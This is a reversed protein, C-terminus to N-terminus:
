LRVTSKVVGGNRTTPLMEAAINAEFEASTSSQIGGTKLIVTKGAAGATVFTTGLWPCGLPPLKTLRVMTPNGDPGIRRTLKPSMADLTSDKKSTVAPTISTTTEAGGCAAPATVIRTSSSPETKLAATGQTYPSSPSDRLQWSPHVTGVPVAAVSACNSNRTKSEFQSGEIPAVTTTLQTITSLAVRATSATLMAATEPHATSPKAVTDDDPVHESSREFLQAIM